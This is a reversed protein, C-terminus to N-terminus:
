ISVLLAANHTAVLLNLLAPTGYGVVRVLLRSRPAVDHVRRLYRVAGETVALALAVTAIGILFLGPLLGFAGVARLVIPNTEVVGRVSLGVFTTLFDAGKTGALLLGGILPSRSLSPTEAPASRRPRMSSGVDAGANTLLLMRHAAFPAAVAVAM